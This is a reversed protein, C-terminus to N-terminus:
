NLTDAGRAGGPSLLAAIALQDLPAMAPEFAAIPWPTRRDVLLGAM